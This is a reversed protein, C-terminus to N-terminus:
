DDEDAIELQGSMRRWVHAWSLGLALLISICILLVWSVATVSDFGLWGMDVFLWVLTALVAAAIVLGLTGLSNRTAVTFVAWGAVLVAGSLFHLPGIESALFAHKAWHAYSWGTPNYTLLVLALAAGARVLFDVFGFAGHPKRATKEEGAM